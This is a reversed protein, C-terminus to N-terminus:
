KLASTGTPSPESRSRETGRLGRLPNRAQDSRPHPTTIPHPPGAVLVRSPAADALRRERSLARRHRTEARTEDPARPRPAGQTHPPAPSLEGVRKGGAGRPGPRCDTPRFMSRKGRGPGGQLPRGHISSGLAQGEPELRYRQRRPVRKAPVLPQPRHGDSRPTQSPGTGEGLGAPRTPPRAAATNPAPSPRRPQEPARRPRRGM